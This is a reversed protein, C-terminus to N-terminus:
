GKLTRTTVSTIKATKSNTWVQIRLRESRGKTGQSRKGIQSAVVYTGGTTGVFEQKSYYGAAKTKTGKEYSAIFYRLQMTENPKLGTVTLSVESLFTSGDFTLISTAGKGVLLTKWKHKILKQVAKYPKSYIYKSM